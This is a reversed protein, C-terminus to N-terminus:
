EINSDTSKQSEFVDLIMREVVALGNIRGTTFRYDEITQADGAALSDALDNMLQRVKKHVAILGSEDDM